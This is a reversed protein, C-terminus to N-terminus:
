KLAASERHKALLVGTVPHRAAQKRTSVGLKALVAVIHHDVTKPSIRLRQAIEKNSPDGALLRLIDMERGTLGLPNGKTEVRPGRPICGVGQARLNRRVIAAAPAAGFKTLIELAQLQAPRNGQALALAQEYPCGIQQWVTAAAQCDGSMELRYPTAVGDPPQDLGGARWLWLSLEGLRWPEPHKLALECAEHLERRMRAKDGKLWATEARAAAVPAIRLIDGTPLALERAKDLLREAAPDGRRM